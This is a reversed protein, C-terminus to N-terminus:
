WRPDGLTTLQLRQISVAHDGNHGPALRKRGEISKDIIPARTAAILRPLLVLLLEFGSHGISLAVAARVALRSRAAAVVTVGSRARNQRSRQIYRNRSGPKSYKRMKLYMGNRPLTM